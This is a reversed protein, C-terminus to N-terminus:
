EGCVKLITAKCKMNRFYMLVNCILIDGFM